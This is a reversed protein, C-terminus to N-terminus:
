RTVEDLEALAAALEEMATKNHPFKKNQVVRRAAQLAATLAALEATADDAFRTPTGSRRCMHEYGDIVKEIANM